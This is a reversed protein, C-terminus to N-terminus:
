TRLKKAKQSKALRKLYNDWIKQQTKSVQHFHLGVGYAYETNPKSVWVVSARLTMYEWQLGMNKEPRIALQLLLKQGADDPYAMIHNRASELDMPSVLPNEEQQIKRREQQIPDSAPGQVVPPKEARKNLAMLREDLKIFVGTRCVNLVVIPFHITQHILVGRLVAFYRSPQRWWRSKPNLYPIRLTTIVLVCSIWLWLAMLVFDAFSADIAAEGLNSFKQFIVYCSLLIFLMFSPTTVVYLAAAALWSVVWESIFAESGLITKLAGFNNGTASCYQLITIVPLLLYVVSFFSILWPKKRYGVPRKEILEM